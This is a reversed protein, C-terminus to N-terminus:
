RCFPMGRRLLFINEAALHQLTTAGTNQLLSPAAAVGQRDAEM